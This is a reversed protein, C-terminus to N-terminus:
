FQLIKLQIKKIELKKKLIKLKTKMENRYLKKYSLPKLKELQETSNDLNINKRIFEERQKKRLKPNKEKFSKIIEKREERMISLKKSYETTQLSNSMRSIVKKGGKFLKKIEPNIKDMGWIFYSCEDKIQKKNSWIRRGTKVKNITEDIYGMFNTRGIIRIEKIKQSLKEQIEYFFKTTATSSPLMLIFPKRHYLCHRFIQEKINMRGKGASFPPNSFVFSNKDKILPSKFFDGESTIVENNQLQNIYAYSGISNNSSDGFAEWVKYKKDCQLIKLDQIAWRLLYKPTYYENMDNIEITNTECYKKITKGTNLVLRNKYINDLVKLGKEQGSMTISYPYTNFIPNLRMLPNLENLQNGDNEITKKMEDNEITKKM